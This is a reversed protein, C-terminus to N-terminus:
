FWRVDVGGRIGPNLNMGLEEVEEGQALLIPHTISTTTLGYRKTEAVVEEEREEEAGTHLGEWLLCDKEFTEM